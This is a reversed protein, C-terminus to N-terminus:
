ATAEKAKQTAYIQQYVPSTQVLEHHTGQAVLRGEDLVLITDAHV